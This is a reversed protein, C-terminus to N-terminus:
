HRNIDADANYEIVGDPTADIPYAYGLGSLGPDDGCGAVAAVALGALSGLFSFLLLARM